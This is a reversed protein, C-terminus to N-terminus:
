FDGLQVLLSQDRSNDQLFVRVVNVSSKRCLEGIVSVTNSTDSMPTLEDPLPFFIEM